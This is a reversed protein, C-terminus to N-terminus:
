MGRVDWGDERTTSWRTAGLACSVLLWVNWQLEQFLLFQSCSVWVRSAVSRSRIQWRILFLFNIWLCMLSRVAMHDVFGTLWTVWTQMMLAPILLMMGSCCRLERPWRVWRTWFLYSQAWRWSRSFSSSLHLQCGWCESFGADDLRPAKTASDADRVVGSPTSSPVNMSADATWSFPDAAPRFAQGAEDEHRTNPARQALEDLTRSDPSCKWTLINLFSGTESCKTFNRHRFFARRQPSFCM